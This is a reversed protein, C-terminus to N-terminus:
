SDTRPQEQRERAEVDSGFVASVAATRSAVGLRAFANELHKRVTATSIRLHHGIEKNSMGLRALALIEFQRETVARRRSTLAPAGGILLHVLHPRLLDLLLVERPCFPRAVVRRLALEGVVVGRLEGQVLLETPAPDSSAVQRPMLPADKSWTLAAHCDFLQEVLLLLNGAQTEKPVDSGADILDILASLGVMTSLPRRTTAGM